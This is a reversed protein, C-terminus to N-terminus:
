PKLVFTGGFMCEHAQSRANMAQYVDFTVQQGDPAVATGSAPNFNPTGAPFSIDVVPYDIFSGMDGRGFAGGAPAQTVSGFTSGGFSSFISIKISDNGADNRHCEGDFGFHGVQAFTPGFVGGNIPTDTVPGVRVLKSGPVFASSDMGDLKDANLNTVKTGSNVTFPPHGSAVNLGLATAGAGTSTNTVQLGKGALPATLSTTSSASNSQGLIFNGGTAAVATGGLVIFGLITVMVNAYTLHSRLWHRM